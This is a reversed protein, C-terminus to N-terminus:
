KTSCLLDQSKIPGVHDEYHATAVIRLFVCTDLEQLLSAVLYSQAKLTQAGDLSSSRSVIVGNAVILYTNKSLWDGNSVM